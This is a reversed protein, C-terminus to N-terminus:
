VASTSPLPEESVEEHALNAVVLTKDDRLEEDLAPAGIMRNLNHMADIDSAGSLANSIATVNASDVREGDTEVTSRHRLFIQDLGDTFVACVAVTSLQYPEDVFLCAEFDEDKAVVHSTGILPAPRRDGLVIDDGAVDRVVCHGDGIAGYHFTETAYNMVIVQLTTSFVSAPESVIDAHALVNERAGRILNGALALDHIANTEHLLEFRERVATCALSAGVHSLRESGLGDAVAIFVVDGIGGFDFSDQRLENRLKHDVGRFSLAAVRLRQSTSLSTIIEPVSDIM